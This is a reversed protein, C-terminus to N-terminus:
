GRGPEVDQSQVEGYSIQSRQRNVTLRERVNAVVLYHDSDRDATKYSRVDLVNSHRHRYVLIHNMQNHTKGDPSMWTYKHINCHPFMTSKPTPRPALWGEGYLIFKYRFVLYLRPGPHIRIISNTYLLSGLSLKSPVLWIDSKTPPRHCRVQILIYMKRRFPSHSDHSLHLKKPTCLLIIDATLLTLDTLSLIDYMISLPRQHWIM